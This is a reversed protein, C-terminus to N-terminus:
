AGINFWSLYFVAVYFVATRTKFLVLCPVSEIKFVM